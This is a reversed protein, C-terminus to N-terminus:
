WPESFDWERLMKTKLARFWEGRLGGLCAGPAITTRLRSLHAGGGKGRREKGARGNDGFTRRIAVLLRGQEDAPARHKLPSGKGKFFLALLHEGGVRCVVICRMQSPKRFVHLRQGGGVREELTRWEVQVYVKSYQLTCKGRKKDGAQKPLAAIFGGGSTEATGERAKPEV